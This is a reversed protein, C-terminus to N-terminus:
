NEKRMSETLEISQLEIDMLNNFISQMSQLHYRYFMGFLLEDHVM